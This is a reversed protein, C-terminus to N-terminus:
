GNQKLFKITEIFAHKKITDLNDEQKFYPFNYIENWQKDEDEVYKIIDLTWPDDWRWRLYIEYRISNYEFLFSCQSPCWILNDKWKHVIKFM